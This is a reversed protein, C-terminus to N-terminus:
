SGGSVSDPDLFLVVSDLVELTLAVQGDLETELNQLWLPPRPVSGAEAGM